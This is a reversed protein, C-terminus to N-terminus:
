PARNVPHLIGDKLAAFPFWSMRPSTLHIRNAPTNM